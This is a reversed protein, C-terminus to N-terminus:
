MKICYKRNSTKGKAEAELLVKYLVKNIIIHKNKKKLIKSMMPNKKNQKQM